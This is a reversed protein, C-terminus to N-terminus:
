YRQGHRKENYSYRVRRNQESNVSIPLFEEAITEDVVGLDVLAHTEGFYENGYRCAKHQEVKRVKYRPASVGQKAQTHMTVLAGNKSQIFGFVQLM